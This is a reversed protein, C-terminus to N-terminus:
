TLLQEWMAESIILFKSSNVSVVIYALQGNRVSDSDKPSDTYEKYQEM